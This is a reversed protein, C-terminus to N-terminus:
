CVFLRIDGLKLGGGFIRAVRPYRVLLESFRLGSININSDELFAFNSSLSFKDEFFGFIAEFRQKGDIVAYPQKRINLSTDRYTFDALYIKPVDFGNLITDILFAQQSHQWVGGKRQYSPSFDINDQEDYWWRLTRAPFERVQLIQQM